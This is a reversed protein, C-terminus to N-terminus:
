TQKKKLYASPSTGYHSKFVKYFTARSSFGAKEALANITFRALEQEGLAATFAKLRYHNVYKYFNTGHYAFAQSLQNETVELSAALDTLSLSPERYLEEQEMKQALQAFLFQLAKEDGKENLYHQNSLDNFYSSYRLSKFVLIFIFLAYFALLVFEFEQVFQRANLLYLLWGILMLLATAFFAFYLILWRVRKRQRIVAVSQLVRISALSFAVSNILYLLIWSLSYTNWDEFLYFFGFRIGLSFLIIQLLLYLSFPFYWLLSWRWRLRANVLARCYFYLLPSISLWCVAGLDMLISNPKLWQNIFLLYHLITLTLAALTALLLRQPVTRRGKRAIVVILMLAQAVAFLYATNIWEIKLAM